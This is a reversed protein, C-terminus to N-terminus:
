KRGRKEVVRGRNVRNRSTATELHGTEFHGTELHGTELHGTELHRPKSIDRNRSTRNRSTATELHGTELHRPAKEDGKNRPKIAVESQWKQILVTRARQRSMGRISNIEQHTLALDNTTDVIEHLDLKPQVPSEEGRAILRRTAEPVAGCGELITEVQRM